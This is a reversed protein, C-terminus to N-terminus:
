NPFVWYTDQGKLRPRLIPTRDNPPRKGKLIGIVDNIVERSEAYASHNFSLADLSTATADITDIGALVIVPGSPGVQGARLTGRRAKSAFDLAKDSASAYLTVGNGIKVNSSRMLSAIKTFEEEAIDPAALIIQDLTPTQIRDRALKALVRLLPANGISHAILHVHEAGSQTLVLEVFDRLYDESFRSSEEDYLYDTLGGGSPWSYLLPVGTFGLDYAIQATRYLANEFSVNYGHVFIFAHGKFDDTDRLGNLKSRVGSTFV